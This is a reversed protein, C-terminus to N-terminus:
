FRLLYRFNRLIMQLSTLRYHLQLIDAQLSVFFSKWADKKMYKAKMKESHMVIVEKLLRKWRFTTDSSIERNLWSEDLDVIKMNLM